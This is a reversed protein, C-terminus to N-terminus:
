TISPCASMPVISIYAPAMGSSLAAVTPFCGSSSTADAEMLIRNDYVTSAVFTVSKPRVHAGHKGKLEEASDAWHFKDHLNIFWRVVGSREPIPFGDEGIWWDILGNSELGKYRNDWDVLFCDPDPNCTARTYPRVGSTSRMRGLMYLFQKRTFQELQDFGAMALQSGDWGYVTKEHQLHTMTVAAGSPFNWQHYPQQTPKGKLHPYLNFSEDWMGGENTIQPTERRFLVAGYQPNAVHRIAEM